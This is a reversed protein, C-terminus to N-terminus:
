VERKEVWIPSSWALQDNSQVVRVYYWNTEEGRDEDHITFSTEAHESFVIRQVVASEWPFPHTFIPENSEALDKFLLTQVVEAPEKISVTLRTEPGGRAKLVVAKQSFDDVQQELATFSQIRVGQENWSIIRDRRNEDLPGPTFCPHVAELVGGEVNLEFEWDAIRDWGLAPWPGWGYDFRILVPRDWSEASTLRDMPFDRHIVRNNKLVEVRDVQNWGSVDVRIERDRTYPLEQGMVYGNMWFDLEIRDGTVAYTRKNKLADFLAERTLEEAKIAALGERYGGPYGLHDDTSAIIGVRHGEALLYQLTNRTWRGGETHRKYPYPARDHEANGWESYMELVPSVVPDRHTFDAGRHGLRNAPHHPILLCGRERAFNQFATLDDFLALEANLDPFLIHYDGHETSHWEYGAFTVFTGPNDFVNAIALVEPWRARTVAFGDIWKKEIGEAYTGIDPWHAHPTFAFFDLHNRAIEFSRRLSGQAYGVANHNHLDGFYTNYETEPQYSVPKSCSSSKVFLGGGFLGCLQMWRRRSFLNDM